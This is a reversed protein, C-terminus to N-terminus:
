ASAMKIKVCGGPNTCILEGYNCLLARYVSQNEMLNFIGGGQLEAFSWQQQHLQLTTTDFGWVEDDPIFPENVIDVVRNAFIFTLAKFGGTLTHSNDEIRRNYAALSAAYSDYATNGCLLMDIKSNKYTEVDRIVSTFYSDDIAATETTKVTPALFPNDAKVLGYLSTVSSDFIAGLGTIERGYSNQVTIFSNASITAPTTSFTVVKTDRNIAVIRLGANAPVSGVAAGSAYVDVILGEKLYKCNDVTATAGTASAVVALKGTGNGFLSRGVNWKASEYAAKTETELADAMAGPSKALRVAKASITINDYMDKAKANFRKFMVNGSAPTAAGEEGYGFGGGIGIPATAVIENNALSITKIKALLATPETTLMNNWAPLYNVKLANEFTKLNQTYDAM